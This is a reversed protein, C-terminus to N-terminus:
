ECVNGAAVTEFVGSVSSSVLGCASNQAGHNPIRSRHKHCTTTFMCELTGRGNPQAENSAWYFSTCFGSQNRGDVGLCAQCHRMRRYRRRRWMQQRNCQWGRRRGSHQRAGNSGLARLRTRKKVREPFCARREDEAYSLWCLKQVQLDQEPARRKRSPQHSGRRGVTSASGSCLERRERKVRQSWDM